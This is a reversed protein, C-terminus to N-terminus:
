VVRGSVLIPVNRMIAHVTQHVNQITLVNLDAILLNALTGLSAHAHQIIELMEVLQIPGVLLLFVLIEKHIM